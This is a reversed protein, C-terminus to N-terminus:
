SALMRRVKAVIGLDAPPFSLADMEAGAVWRFAAVDLARPAPSGAQLTAEFFLLLVSRQLEAYHHFAVELIEGASTRIGLEEELERVLAARPDEGHEAKGGPFEWLGELHGGKKRQTLLVRNERIVVGAAVVLTNASMTAAWNGRGSKDPIPYRARAMVNGWGSAGRGCAGAKGGEINGTALKAFHGGSSM